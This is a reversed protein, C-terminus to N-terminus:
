STKSLQDGMEFYSVSFAYVWNPRALVITTGEYLGSWRYSLAPMGSVMVESLKGEGLEFNSSPTNHIWEETTQKTIDNQYIDISIMPPAESEQPLPLSQKPILNIAHHKRLEREPADFFGLVYSDPYSFSIGYEADEYHQLNSPAPESKGSFYFYGAIVGLIVAIILYKPKM